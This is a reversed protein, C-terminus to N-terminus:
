TVRTGSSAVGKESIPERRLDELLDNIEFLDEKKLEGSKVMHAIAIVPDHVLFYKKGASTRTSIFCKKELSRLHPTLNRRSKLGLDHVIEELTPYCIFYRSARLSLYILVRFEPASLVRMIKRLIIPLPIFGREDTNFVLAEANPFYERRYRLDKPEKQEQKKTERKM